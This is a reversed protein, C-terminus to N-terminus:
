ELGEAGDTMRSGGSALEIWRERGREIMISALRPAVADYAPRLFPKAPVWGVNVGGKGAKGGRILAHGFEILHGHPALRANWSISYVVRSETSQGDKFALYISDRLRGTKVPARVKAEDRVASGGAVAMSRALSYATGKLNDLGALVNSLDVTTKVTM